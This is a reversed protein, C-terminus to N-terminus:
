SSVQQLPQKSVCTCPQKPQAAKVRIIASCGRLQRCHTVTGPAASRGHLEVTRSYAPAHLQSAKGNCAGAPGLRVAGALLALYCLLLHVEFFGPFRPYAVSDVVLQAGDSSEYANAHHFVFASEAAAELVAPQAEVAPM